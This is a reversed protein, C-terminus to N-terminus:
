RAPSAQVTVPASTPSVVKKSPIAPCATQRATVHDGANLSATFVPQWAQTADASGIPTAGGNRFVDVHTGPNLDNVPVIRGCAFLDPGVVPTNLPPYPGVVVPDVSQASTFGNVEQTASVKDGLVLAQTLPIDAEAFYPQQTGIQTVGNLYVRVIAHPLFGSVHVARACEGVPSVIPPSLEDGSRIPFKENIIPGRNEQGPLHFSSLTLAAVVLVRVLSRLRM